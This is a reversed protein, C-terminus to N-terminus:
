AGAEAVGAVGEIASGVGLYAQQVLPSSLMEQPTGRFIGQGFDLVHVFDCIATVLTMDHEILLIGVGRTRVVEQLLRGFRETEQLDLGSSPEDLLLLQYPGALCRALEVLRRQGTSLTGVPQSAIDQLGCLRMASAAAEAIRHRDGRAPIVHSLPNIGALSGERGLAVNARVTLDDFLQM